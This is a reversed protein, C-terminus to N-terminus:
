SKIEVATVEYQKKITEIDRGNRVAFSLDARVSDNPELTIAARTCNSPFGLARLLDAAFM